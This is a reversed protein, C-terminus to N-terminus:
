TYERKKTKKKRQETLQTQLCHHRRVLGIPISARLLHPPQLRTHSCPWSATAMTLEVFTRLAILQFGSTQQHTSQRTVLRSNAAIDSSQTVVKCSPCWVLGMLPCEGEEFSPPVPEVGVRAPPILCYPVSSMYGGIFKCVLARPHRTGLHHMRPCSTVLGIEM